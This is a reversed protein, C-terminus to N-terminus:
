SNEFLNKSKNKIKTSKTKTADDKKNDWKINDWNSYYKSKDSFPRPKSGKGM